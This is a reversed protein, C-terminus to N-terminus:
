TIVVPGYKNDPYELATISGSEEDIEIIGYRGGFGVSGPNMVLMKGDATTLQTHTHGFLVVDANEQHGLMVLRYLSEKVYQLHGHTVMIRKGGLEITMLSPFTCSWDCNGRVSYIKKEPFQKQLAEVDRHGDGCFIIADADKHKRIADKMKKLEGHSDSFVLLKM